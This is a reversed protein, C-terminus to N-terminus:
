VNTMEATKLFEQTSDKLAKADETKLENGTDIALAAGLLIASRPSKLYYGRRTGHYNDTTTKHRECPGFSCNFNATWDSGRFCALDFGTYGYSFMANILQETAYWSARFAYMDRNAPCDIPTFGLIQSIVYELNYVSHGKNLNDSILM